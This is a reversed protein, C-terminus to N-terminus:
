FHQGGLDTGTSINKKGQLQSNNLLQLLHNYQEQSLGTSMQQNDCGEQDAFDVGVNGAIKRGKTLKLGKLFGVLRYCKKSTHRPKNYHNCVINKKGEFRGRQNSFGQSNNTQQPIMPSQNFAYMSASEPIFQTAAKVEKQKEDQILLAYAQSISPLPKMM